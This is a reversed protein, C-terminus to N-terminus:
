VTKRKFIILDSSTAIVFCNGIKNFGYSKITDTRLFNVCDDIDRESYMSKWNPQFIFDLNPWDLAMFELSDGLKNTTPLGGGHLGAIRVKEGSIQGIGICTMEEYNIEFEESYDRDIRELKSCDFLGRGNSSIALLLSESKDSFGIETLGGVAFTAMEWGIPCELRPIKNLIGRLRKRNEEELNKSFLKM